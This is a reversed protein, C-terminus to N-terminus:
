YRGTEREAYRPLEDTFEYWEAASDAYIHYSPKATIPTTLTGIRLRLWEPKTDLRSYLPSGCEACFARQKGPSSEYEKIHERGSTFRFEAAKIPSVASYASGNARRCQGCHCLAIAGLDGSYEYCVQGCLCQGKLM